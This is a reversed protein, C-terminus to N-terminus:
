CRKRGRGRSPGRGRGRGRKRRPAALYAYQDDDDSSNIAQECIYTASSPGATSSSGVMPSPRGSGLSCRKQPTQESSEAQRRAGRVPPSSESENADQDSSAVGAAGVGEEDHSCAVRPDTRRSKQAGGQEVVSDDSRRKRSPLHAKKRAREFELLMDYARETSFDRRRLWSTPDDRNLPYGQWKVLWQMTKGSPRHMELIEEIEYEDDSLEDPENASDDNAGARESVDSDSARQDNSDGGNSEQDNDADDGAGSGQYSSPAGIYERIM